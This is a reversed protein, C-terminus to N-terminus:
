QNFRQRIWKIVELACDQAQPYIGFKDTFAHMMGKYNIYHAEVGNQAMLKAYDYGQPRLYDFEDTVVLAPVMKKAVEAPILLPSISPDDVSMNRVYTPDILNNSDKMQKMATSINEYESPIIHYQDWSWQHQDSLKPDLSTVPYLEVQGALYHNGRQADFYSMVASLNGGSSDGNVVIQNPNVQYDAAHQHVWSVATYCDNAADPAAYEPTLRYDVSFVVAPIKEAYYKCMNRTVEVAGAFFGGGHIYVMAPLDGLGKRDRPAYIELPVRNEALAHETKIDETTLDFNHSGFTQRIQLVKKEVGTTPTFNAQSTIKSAPAYPASPTELTQKVIPDLSGPEVKKLRKDKHWVHNEDHHFAAQAMLEHLDEFYEKTTPTYAYDSRAM